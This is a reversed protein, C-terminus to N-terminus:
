SQTLRQCYTQYAAVLTGRYDAEKHPDIPHYIGVTKLLTDGCDEGPKLGKKRLHQFILPLGAIAVPKGKVELKGDAVPQRLRLLRCRRGPGREIGTSSGLGGPCRGRGRHTRRCAM